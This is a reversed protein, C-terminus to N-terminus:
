SFALLRPPRYPSDPDSGAPKLGAYPVVSPETRPPEVCPTTDVEPQPAAAIAPVAHSSHCNVCGPPCEHGQQDGCDDEVHHERGQLTEFLDLGIHALGSLEGVLMFVCVRLLVFCTVVTARRIRKREACAVAQTEYARPVRM